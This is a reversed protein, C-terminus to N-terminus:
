PMATFTERHDTSWQEFTRAPRGLLRPVVDTVQANGATAWAIGTTIAPIAEEPTGTQRLQEAPDVDVTPIQRNLVRGLITAQETFTLLEPGTVDYRQGNHEDDTLAAVAVEAVDRPDVIPQRAQGLMNPIPAGTAILQRYWLFNSAFSPPRLVTWALGSDAIAEEAELHWKGVIHGDHVAGTGIASLKVIKSVSAAQAATVLALDHAPSPTPPVTVLFVTSVGALAVTLSRPDTFDAQVTNPGPKRSMAHFPVDRETLLRTVHSGITGTAGTVLIM